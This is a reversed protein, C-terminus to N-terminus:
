PFDSILIHGCLPSFTSSYAGDIALRDVREPFMSAFTIGLVSGYSFGWYRLGKGRVEERGKGVRKWARETIELMDRAVVATGVHKGVGALGEGGLANECIEGVVKARSYAESIEEGSGSSGLVRDDSKLGWVKRSVATHFCSMSPTTNNIGRPDFGLISFQPGLITQIERGRSLGFSM